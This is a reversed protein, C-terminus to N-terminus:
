FETQLYVKSLELGDASAVAGNRVDAKFSMGTDVAPIDTTYSTDIVVVGTSVNVIKVFIEAAGPACDITMEYGDTTNRPM